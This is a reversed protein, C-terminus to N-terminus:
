GRRDLFFPPLAALSMRRLRTLWDRMSALRIREEDYQRRLNTVMETMEADLLLIQALLQSGEPDLEAPFDRRGDGVLTAFWRDRERILLELRSLLATEEGQLDSSLVGESARALELLRSLCDKQEQALHAIARLITKTESGSAM